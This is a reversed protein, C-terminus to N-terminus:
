EQIELQNAVSRLLPDDRNLFFDDKGNLGTNPNLSSDHLNHYFQFFYLYYFVMRVNYSWNFFYKYFNKACFIRQILKSREVMPIIHLIKYLFWICKATSMGHDLDLLLEIAKMFFRYDFQPPIMQRNKHITTFWLAVLELAQSVATADYAHTKKFVITVFVNILKTNCLMAATTEKLAEPYRSIEREKM